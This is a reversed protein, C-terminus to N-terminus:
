PRLTTLTFRQPAARSGPVTVSVMLDLARGSRMVTWELQFAGRKTQAATPNPALALSDLLQLAAFAAEEQQEGQRFLAAASGASGAVALLGVSLLTLAVVVEILSFGSRIVM